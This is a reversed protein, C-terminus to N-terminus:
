SSSLSSLLLGIIFFAAGGAGLLAAKKILLNKAPFFITRLSNLFFYGMGIAFLFSIFYSISVFAEM